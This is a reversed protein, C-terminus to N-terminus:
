MAATQPKNINKGSIHTHTYPACVDCNCVSVLACRVYAVLASNVYDNRVRASWAASYSKHSKSSKKRRRRQMGEARNARMTSERGRRRVRRSERWRSIRPMLQIIFSNLIARRTRYQWCNIAGYGGQVGNNCHHLILPAWLGWQWQEYRREHVSVAARRTAKPWHMYVDTETCVKRM